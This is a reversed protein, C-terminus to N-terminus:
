GETDRRPFVNRGVLFWHAGWVLWLESYCSNFLDCQKLICAIRRSFRVKAFSQALIINHGDDVFKRISYADREADGSAFGQCQADDYLSCFLLLNFLKGKDLTNYPM